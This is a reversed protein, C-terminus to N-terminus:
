AQRFQVLKTRWKVPLQFGLSLKEKFSWACIQSKVNSKASTGSGEITDSAQLRWGGHRISKKTSCSKGTSPPTSLAMSFHWRKTLIGKFTRVTGNLAVLELGEFNIYGSHGCDAYDEDFVPIYHLADCNLVLVSSSSILFILLKVSIMKVIHVILDKSQM